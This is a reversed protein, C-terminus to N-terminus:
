VLNFAKMTHEISPLFPHFNHVLFVVGIVAGIFGLFMLWGFIGKVMSITEFVARIIYYFFYFISRIAFKIANVISLFFDAILSFLGRKEKITATTDTNANSDRIDDQMHKLPQSSSDPRKKSMSKSSRQRKHTSVKNPEQAEQPMSASAPDRSARKPSDAKQRPKTPKLEINYPDVDTIKEFYDTHDDGDGDNGAFVSNLFVSCVFFVLVLGKMVRRSHGPPLTPNNIVLTCTWITMMHKFNGIWM